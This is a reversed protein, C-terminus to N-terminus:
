TPMTLLKMLTAMDTSGSPALRRLWSCDPLYPRRPDLLLKSYMAMPRTNLLHLLGRVKTAWRSGGSRPRFPM